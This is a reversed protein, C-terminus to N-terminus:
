LLGEAFAKRKDGPKRFVLFYCEFRRAHQQARKDKSRSTATLVFWDVDVFGARLALLWVICHTAVFRSGEITPQLKFVLIGGPVLVRHLEALAEAYMAHLERQNHYSSFRKGMFSKEGAHHMFPPDFLTSAVSQRDLPLARVDGHQVGPMKPALDFCLRPRPIRGDTYFCGSGYTPDLEFGGPCYLRMIWQLIEGQDASVSRIYERAPPPTKPAPKPRARKRPAAAGPLILQQAASM